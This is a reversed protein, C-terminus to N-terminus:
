GEMGRHIDRWEVVVERIWQKGERQRGASLLKVMRWGSDKGGMLRCLRDEWRQQVLYPLQWRSTEWKADQLILTAM